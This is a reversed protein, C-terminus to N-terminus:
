SALNYSIPNPQMYFGIFNQLRIRDQGNLNLFALSIETREYPKRVQRFSKVTLPCNIKLNNFVIDANPLAQGITLQHALKGPVIIRMGGASINKITCHWNTKLPSKLKASLPCSNKVEGTLSLRPYFRRQQYAIETPLEMAYYLHDNEVVIDVLKGSFSLVQGQQKHTVVLEDGSIIPCYPNVPTLSDLLILQKVFDLGVIMSQYSQPHCNGVVEVELLQRKDQLEMLPIYRAVQDALSHEVTTPNAHATDVSKRQQRSLFVKQIFNPLHNMAM